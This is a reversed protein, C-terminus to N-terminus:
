LYDRKVKFKKTITKYIVFLMMFINIEMWSFNISEMSMSSPLIKIANFVKKSVFKSSLKNVLIM